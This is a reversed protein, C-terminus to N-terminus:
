GMGSVFLVEVLAGIGILSMGTLWILLAADYRKELKERIELNNEMLRRAEAPSRVMSSVGFEKGTSMQAMLIILAVMNLAIGAWVLRESFAVWTFGRTFLFSVGVGGIAIGLSISLRRYLYRVGDQFLELLVKLLHLRSM